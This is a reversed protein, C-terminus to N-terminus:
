SGPASEPGKTKQPKGGTAPRITQPTHKQSTSRETFTPRAAAWPQGEESGLITTIGTEPQRVRFWDLSASSDGAFSGTLYLGVAGHRSTTATGNVSASAGDSVRRVKGSIAAGQLTLGYIQEDMAIAFPTNGRAAFAPLHEFLYAHTTTGAAGFSQDLRAPADIRAGLNVNFYTPSTRRMKTEVLGNTLRHNRTYLYGYLRSFGATSVEAHGGTVSLNANMTSWRSGPDPELTVPNRPITARGVYNTNGGGATGRYWSIFQDNEILVSPENPGFTAPMEWDESKWYLETGSPTWSLLDTSTAYTAVQRATGASYGTYFMMYKGPTYPFVDADFVGTASIGSGTPEVVPSQPAEEYSGPLGTSSTALGIRAYPNVVRGGFYLYYTGGVLIECPDFVGDEYWTGGAAEFLVGQETFHVGDTSTALRITELQGEADSYVMRFTVGDYDKAVDVYQGSVGTVLEPASWTLGDTSTRRFIDAGLDYYIWYENGEKIVSPEIGEFLADSKVVGGASLFGDFFDFTADGDSADLADLSGYYVYIRATESPALYPIKVFFTASGPDADERWHRLLTVGDSSAFRVDDFLPSSTSFTLDVSVPYDKVPSASSNTVDIARRWLWDEHFWNPPAAAIPSVIALALVLVVFAHRRMAAHDYYTM